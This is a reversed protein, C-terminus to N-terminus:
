WYAPVDPLAVGCTCIGAQRAHNVMAGCAPCRVWHPNMHDVTWVSTFGGQGLTGAFFERMAEKHTGQHMTKQVSEADDWATITIMRNGVVVAVWGQFEPVRMLEIATQRSKESVREQEAEDLARLQTVSFAGPVRGPKGEIAVSRGFSFPGIAHPQVLVQLGLQRPLVGSDFYGTVSAIGDGNFRVFDSGPLEVAKGTPPLGSMSGHNTGRMIWEAAIAGDSTEAVSTLEFQLDPFVSWLGAANAGIAPGRLPGGTTPDSYTGGEAFTAVIGEADHQNWADFYRMAIDLASM